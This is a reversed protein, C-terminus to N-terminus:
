IANMDIKQAFIEPKLTFDIDYKWEWNYIVYLFRILAMAFWKLDWTYNKIRWFYIDLALIRNKDILSFNDFWWEIGYYDIYNSPKEWEVRKFTKMSDFILDIDFIWTSAYKITTYMWMVRNAYDHELVLKKPKLIVDEVISSFWWDVSVLETRSWEWDDIQNWIIGFSDNMNLFNIVTEYEIFNLGLTM